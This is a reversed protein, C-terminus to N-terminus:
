AAALKGIMREIASALTDAATSSYNLFLDPEVVELEMLLFQTATVVADVRAYLTPAPSFALVAAAAAVQEDTVAELAVTGGLHEQVRFEGAAPRKRVAHTFRGEVFVFSVEGEQQVAEVFPQVVVEGRTLMAALRAEETPALPIGSTWTDHAGGSVAPKVVVRTWGRDSALRSVDAVSGADLWLSPTVPVGREALERLYHKHSNWRLVAPPNALRVGADELRQVWALFERIRLFYDWPSRVVVLDYGSWDAAPDSWRVPEGSLGRATLAEALVRDSPTLGPADEYTVLAIRRM